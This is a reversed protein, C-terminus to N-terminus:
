FNARLLKPTSTSVPKRSCPVEDSIALMENLDSLSFREGMFEPIGDSLARSIFESELHLPIPQDKLAGLGSTLLPLPKQSNLHM